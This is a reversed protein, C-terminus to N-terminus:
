TNRSKLWNPFCIEWSIWWRPSSSPFFRTRCWIRGVTGCPVVVRRLVYGRGDNDSVAGDAIHRFLPEFIIRWVTPWTSLTRIKRGVVKWHVSESGDGKQIANFLLIFIDRITTRTLMRCFVTLRESGMGTDVHQAALTPPVM